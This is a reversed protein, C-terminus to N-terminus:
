NQLFTFMFCLGLVLLPFGYNGIFGQLQNEWDANSMKVYEDYMTAVLIRIIDNFTKTAMSISVGFLDGVTSFSTGHALHYLTLQRDPTPNANLNTTQKFIYPHIIGLIFEFTQRSIRLRTKFEEEEWYQYGYKNWGHNTTTCNLDLYNENKEGM